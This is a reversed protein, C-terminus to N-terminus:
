TMLFCSIVESGAISIYQSPHETGLASTTSDVIPESVSRDTVIM